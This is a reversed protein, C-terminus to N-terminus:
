DTESPEFPFFGLTASARIAQVRNVVGLKRYIGGLHFDVTRQSLCLHSAIQATTSGFALRELVVLESRTLSVKSQPLPEPRSERPM